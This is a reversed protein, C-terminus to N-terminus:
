LSQGSHVLGGASQATLPGYTPISEPRRYEFRHKLRLFRKEYLHYSLYAALCATAGVMLGSMAAIAVHSTTVHGLWGRFWTELYGIALYHLVYIGYSYRGFWRLAPREFVLDAMSGRVLCWAILGASAVAWLSIGLSFELTQSGSAAIAVLGASAALFVAKGQKLVFSLAPGRILLALAAGCLLSDLRTETSKTIVHDPVNHMAFWLRLLLSIGGLVGCAVLLRKRDRILYVMLPWVLYFQEEVALSWFHVLKLNEPLHFDWVPTVVSTNQLYFLMSWNMHHWEIHLWPTLAFLVLLTGYYLPFIRLSRRAYFKRFYGTDALSDYLIGTILFGSLVFFLDVGRAGFQTLQGVVWVLRGHGAFKSSFVHTAVVGLVALGRLGDLSRIHSQALAGSSPQLRPADQGLVSEKM